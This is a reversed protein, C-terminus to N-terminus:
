CARVAAQELEELFASLGYTAACVFKDAGGYYVILEDGIVVAGCPYVVGSKHGENEPPAEPELIPAPSRHLVKKPEVLDLLMAGVKYKSDHRDDVAHYILLWGDETRIPPPGAGVKRSDWFGPRPAISFEGSLYDDEGFELSERRSVLMEPFVRHFFVYEGGIREPFLVANKDVIGPRSILVPRRWTWRQALFDDVSISTLAVRPPAFGNFAVYTMYLTDDILTLRPDECGGYGGGSMYQRAYPNPHAHQRPPAPTMEFSERPVYAPEDLREDIHIGDVSSAYGLVSIGLEGMARYLFHVRGDLHIAATNFTAFSEWANDRRPSIIPNHPLRRLQPTLAGATALMGAGAARDPVFAPGSRTARERTKTQDIPM